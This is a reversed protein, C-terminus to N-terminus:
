LISSIGSSRQEALDNISGPSVAGSASAQYVVSRSQHQSSEHKRKEEELYALFVANCLMHYLHPKGSEEDLSQGERWAEVHRRLANYYRSTDTCNKWNDKGYGKTYAGYMMIDVVGRIVSDPLMDYELKGSDYKKFETM